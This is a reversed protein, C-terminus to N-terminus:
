FFRATWSQSAPKEFGNRWDGADTLSTDFVPTERAVEGANIADAFGDHSSTEIGSKTRYFVRGGGVLRSGLVGELQQLTRFLGDISCGSANEANVDVGVALFRGDRWDRACRLPTGHAAWGALFEDVASLLSDAADGSLPKDSAFVWVRASDPLTDFAVIPM